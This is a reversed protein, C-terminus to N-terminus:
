RMNVFIYVILLAVLVVAITIWVIMYRSADKTGKLYSSEDNTPPPNDIEYQRKARDHLENALREQLKSRQENNNVFLAMDKTYQVADFKHRSTQKKQM